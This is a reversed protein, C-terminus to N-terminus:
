LICITRYICIGLSIFRFSGHGNPVARIMM